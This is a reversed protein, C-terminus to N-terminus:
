DDETTEVAWNIRWELETIQKNIVEILASSQPPDFLLRVKLFMYSKILNLDGKVILSDWTTTKDQVFEDNAYTVGMQALINLVTNIHILIDQDFQTYEEEIGLMKKVDTLISNVNNFRRIYQKVFKEKRKKPNQLM